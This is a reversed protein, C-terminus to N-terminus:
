NQFMEIRSFFEPRFNLIFRTMQDCQRDSGVGVDLSWPEFGRMAIKQLVNQM